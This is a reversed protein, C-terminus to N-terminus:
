TPEKETQTTLLEDLLARGGSIIQCPMILGVMEPVDSFIIGMALGPARDIIQVHDGGTVNHLMRANLGFGDYTKEQAAPKKSAWVGRWNPFKDGDVVHGAIAAEGGYGRGFTIKAIADGHDVLDFRLRRGTYDPASMACGDEDCDSVSPREALTLSVVAAKPASATKDRAVLIARGDTAVLWAGGSPDPEILVGSLYYRTNETGVARRVRMFLDADIDFTTETM